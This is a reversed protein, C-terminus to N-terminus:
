NHSIQGQSGYRQAASELASTNPITSPPLLPHAPTVHTQTSRFISNYDNRDSLDDDHSGHDVNISINILQGAPIQLEPIQFNKLNPNLSSHLFDNKRRGQKTSIKRFGRKM